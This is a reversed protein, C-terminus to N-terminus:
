GQVDLSISPTVKSGSGLHNAEIHQAWAKAFDHWETETEAPNDHMDGYAFLVADKLYRGHDEKNLDYWLQQIAAVPLNHEIPVGYGRHKSAASFSAEYDSWEGWHIGYKKM